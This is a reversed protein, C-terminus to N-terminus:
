KTTEKGAAEFLRKMAVMGEGYACFSERGRDDLAEVLKAIKLATVGEPPLDQKAKRM